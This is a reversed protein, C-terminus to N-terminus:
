GGAKTKQLLARVDEAIGEAILRYGTATPHANEAHILDSLRGSNELLYQSFKEAQASWDRYVLYEGKPDLHHLESRLLDRDQEIIPWRATDSHLYEYLHQILVKTGRSRSVRSLEQLCHRLAKTRMDGWDADSSTIWINRHNPLFRLFHRPRIASVTCLMKVIKRLWGEFGRAHGSRMRRFLHLYAQVLWNAYPQPERIVFNGSADKLFIPRDLIDAFANSKFCRDLQWHGYLLIILEVDDNKPALEIRRAMQLLSYNGVSANGVKVGIARELNAAIGDDYNSGVGMGWSCGVMTISPQGDQMEGEIPTGIRWGKSDTLVTETGYSWSLRTVANPKLISGLYSHPIFHQDGTIVIIKEVKNM